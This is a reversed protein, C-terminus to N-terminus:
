RAPMSDCPVRVARLTWTRRLDGLRGSSDPELAADSRATASGIALSDSLALRMELRLFDDGAIFRVSDTGDRRWRASFRKSDQDALEAWGSDAREPVEIGLWGPGKGQQGAPTPPGLLVSHASRYCWAAVRIGM